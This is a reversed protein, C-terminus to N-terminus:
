EDELVFQSGPGIGHDDAWGGQVEVVWQVDGASQASFPGAPSLPLVETVVGNEDIFIVDLDYAVDKTAFERRGPSEWVFLMGADDTLQPRGQLGRARERVTDAVEVTLRTGDLSIRATTPREPSDCGIAVLAVVTCCLIVMAFPLASSWRGHRFM